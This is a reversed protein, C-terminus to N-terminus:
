NVRLKDCVIAYASAVGFFRLNEINNSIFDFVTKYEIKNREAVSIALDEASFSTELQEDIWIADDKVYSPKMSLARREREDFPKGDARTIYWMPSRFRKLFLPSECNITKTRGTGRNIAFYKM